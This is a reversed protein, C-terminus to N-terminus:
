FNTFTKSKQTLFYGLQVCLHEGDKEETTVDASSSKVPLTLGALLSKLQVLDPNEACLNRVFVFCFLIEKLGGATNSVM